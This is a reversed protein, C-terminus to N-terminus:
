AHKLVEHIGGRAKISGSIPLESDAKLWLSGSSPLGAAQLLTAHLKPLPRLPSEIIGGTAATDPFVSALYPAFRALRASAASVDA